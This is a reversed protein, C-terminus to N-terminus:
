QGGGEQKVQVRGGIGHLERELVDVAKHTERVRRNGELVRESADGGGPSTGM